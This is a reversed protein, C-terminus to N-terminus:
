RKVRVPEKDADKELKGARYSVESVILVALAGALMTPHLHMPNQAFRVVWYLFATGTTLAQISRFNMFSYEFISLFFFTRLCVLLTIYVIRNVM